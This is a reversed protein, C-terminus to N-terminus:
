MLNLLNLACHKGYLYESITTQALNSLTLNKCKQALLEGAQPPPTTPDHLL